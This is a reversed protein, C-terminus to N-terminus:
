LFLALIFLPILLWMGLKVLFFVIGLLADILELLATIFPFQGGSM